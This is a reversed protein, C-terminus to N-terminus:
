PKWPNQGKFFPDNDLMSFGWETEYRSICDLADYGYAEQLQMLFEPHLEVLFGLTSDYPHLLNELHSIVDRIKNGKLYYPTEEKMEYLAWLLGVNEQSQVKYIAECLIRERSPFLKFWLEKFFLVVPNESLQM